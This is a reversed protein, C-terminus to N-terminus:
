TALCDKVNHSSRVRGIRRWDSFQRASRVRGTQCDPRPDSRLVDAKISRHISRSNAGIHCAIQQLISRTDVMSRCSDVMM